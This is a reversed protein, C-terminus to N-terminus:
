QLCGMACMVFSACASDQECVGGAMTTCSSSPGKESEATLCQGCASSPMTGNPAGNACSSTCETNCASGSACGCAALEDGLFKQYEAQNNGVCAARCALFGGSGSSTSGDSTSGGAGSASSSSGCAVLSLLALPAFVARHVLQYLPM